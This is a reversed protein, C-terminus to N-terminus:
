FLSQLWWFGETIETHVFILLLFWLHIRTKPWELSFTANWGLRSCVACVCGCFVSVFPRLSCKDRWRRRWCSCLDAEQLSSFVLWLPPSFMINYGCIADSNRSFIGVFIMLSICLFWGLCWLKACGLGTTRMESVLKHTLQITILPSGSLNYSLKPLPEVKISILYSSASIM